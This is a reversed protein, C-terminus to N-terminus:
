ENFADEDDHDGDDPEAGTSCGELGGADQECEDAEVEVVACGCRRFCFLASHEFTQASLLGQKGYRDSAVIRNRVRQKRFRRDTSRRPIDKPM